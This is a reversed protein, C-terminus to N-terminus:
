PRAVMSDLDLRLDRGALSLSEFLTLERISISSFTLIPCIPKGTLCTSRQHQRKHKLRMSKMRCSTRLTDLSTRYLTSLAISPMKREIRSSLMERMKLLKWIKMMEVFATNPPTIKRKKQQQEDM